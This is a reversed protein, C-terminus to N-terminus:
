KHLKRGVRVIDYGDFHPDSKYIRSSKKIEAEESGWRKMLLKKMEEKFYKSQVLNIICKEPQQIWSLDLIHFNKNAFNFTIKQNGWFAYGTEQQSQSEKKAGTSTCTKVKVLVFIHKGFKIHFRRKYYWFWGKDAEGMWSWALWQSKPRSILDQGLKITTGM